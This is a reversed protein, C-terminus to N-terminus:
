RRGERRCCEHHLHPTLRNTDIYSSVGHCSHPAEVLSRQYRVTHRRLRYGFQYRVIHYRVRSAWCRYCIVGLLVLGHQRLVTVMFCPEIQLKIYLISCLIIFLSTMSLLCIHLCDHTFLLAFWM